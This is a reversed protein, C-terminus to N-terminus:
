PTKLFFNRSDQGTEGRFGRVDIMGREIFLGGVGVGGSDDGAELSFAPEVGIGEGRAKQWAM